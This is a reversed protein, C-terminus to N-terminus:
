QLSPVQRLDQLHILGLATKRFPFGEPNITKSLRSVGAPQESFRCAPLILTQCCRGKAGHREQAGKPAWGRQCMTGGGTPKSNARHFDFMLLAREALAIEM